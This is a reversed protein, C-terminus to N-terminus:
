NTCRYPEVSVGPVAEWYKQRVVPETFTAPDIVELRYNLRRGDDSVAFAETIEADLSLPLGVTDFHQWSSGTTKVVLTDGQWEGVSYGLLSPAPRAGPAPELHITRVTDYEEIRLSIQRGQDVFEIPYPQEMITPMGKPNCNLTPTDTLPDFADLARKAQPTLPYSNIDFDPVFGEPLLPFSGPDALVTSWVRFLGRGAGSGAERQGTWYEKSEIGRAAWRPEGRPDLVVEDGSALLANLAFLENAGRRSPNGALKVADGVQLVDSGVGMRSLISVSHTEINWEAGDSEAEISFRVHPNSWLVRTVRGEIEIVRGPDFTANFSHHAFAAASTGLCLLAAFRIKMKVPSGSKMPTILAHLNGETASVRL